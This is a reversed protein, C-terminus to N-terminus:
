RTAPTQFERLEVVISEEFLVGQIIYVKLAAETITHKSAILLNCKLIFSKM